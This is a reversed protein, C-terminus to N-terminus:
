GPELGRMEFTEDMPRPSDMLVSDGALITTPLAIRRGLELGLRRYAELQNEDFFQDITSQNPFSSQEAAYGLISAPLDAVLVSKVYVLVGTSDDAYTIRARLVGQEALRRTERDGGVPLRESPVATGLPTDFLITAGFDAYVREVLNALDAFQYDPDAGADVSVILRTKRRILEYVGLNEFHGGDTLLNFPAKAKFGKGLLSCIGPSLLNPQRCRSATNTIWFGLQLGFLGMLFSVARSRTLGQGNCGAQANVAAGSIAMATALTMGDTNTPKGNKETTEGGVVATTRLWGVASGGSYLPALVFRDGGRGRLISHSSDVLVVNTNLLHYPKGAMDSLLATNAANAATWGKKDLTDPDPLFAEMLRDRYMRNLLTLNVDALGGVLLPVAVAAVLWVPALSSAAAVRGVLFTGLLVGLLAALAYVQMAVDSDLRSRGGSGALGRQAGLGGGLLGLLGSVAAVVGSLWNGDGLRFLTTALTPLLGVVALCAVLGLYGGAWEQWVRRYWYLRGASRESSFRTFASYLVGFLAFLLAGLGALWLAPNVQLEFIQPKNVKALCDPASACEVKAKLRVLHDKSDVMFIEGGEVAPLSVGDPGLLPGIGPLPLNAAIMVALLLGGYVTLTTLAVRLVVGLASLKNLRNSPDLYSGRSRLFQAFRGLKGLSDKKRLWTLTSGLYGGGSVTSLYHFQGFAAKGLGQVVGLCFSASRIGGGSLALGIRPEDPEAGIARLEAPLVVNEFDRTRAELARDGDVPTIDEGM